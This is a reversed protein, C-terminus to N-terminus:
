AILDRHWIARRVRPSGYPEHAEWLLEELAHTADNGYGGLPYRTVFSAAVDRAQDDHSLKELRSRIYERKTPADDPAAPLGIEDCLAPLDVGRFPQLRREVAVSLFERLRNPYTSLQKDIEM